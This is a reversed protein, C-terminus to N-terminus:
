DDTGDESYETSPQGKNALKNGNKKKKAAAAARKAAIREELTGRKASVRKKKEERLIDEDFLARLKTNTEVASLINKQFVWFRDYVKDDKDAEVDITVDEFQASLDNLVSTTALYAKVMVAHAYLVKLHEKAELETLKNIEEAKM